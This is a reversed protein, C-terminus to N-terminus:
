RGDLPYGEEGPVLGDIKVVHVNPNVTDARVFGIAGPIIGVMNVVAASSFSERPAQEPHGVFSAHIAYKQYESEGMEFLFRIGLSHGPEAANPALTQIKEGDPWRAKEGRFIQRLQKASLTTVSNAKNVIIVVGPGGGGSMTTALVALAAITSVALKTTM